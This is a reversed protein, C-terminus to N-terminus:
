RAGITWLYLPHGHALIERQPPWDGMDFRHSVVRAGPRAADFVRALAAPSRLVDHAYSFLLADVPGPIRAEEIPAEVLEVNALGLAAVRKRALAMMEPSQEVGIVRGARASLLPLAAGTGCAVDLVTDGANLALLGIARTRKSEIRWASADYRHATKRYHALAAARDPGGKNWM